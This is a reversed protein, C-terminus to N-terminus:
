AGKIGYLAISNTGNFSSGALQVTISTVAATSMWLGSFLRMLGSGNNDLGGISRCTKNKSTSAYDIIDIIGVGRYQTSYGETGLVMRNQSTEATASASSGDGSIWHDAYNNGTDGNFQLSINVGVGSYAMWRIQLHKYTSPISSFTVSSGSSPAYSAISEFSGTAAAVGSSLTGLITNLM